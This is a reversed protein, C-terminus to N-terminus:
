GEQDKGSWAPHPYIEEPDARGIRDMGPPGFIRADLAEGPTPGEIREVPLTLRFRYAM